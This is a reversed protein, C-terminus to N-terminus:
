FDSMERELEQARIEFQQRLKDDKANEDMMKDFVKFGCASVIRTHLQAGISKKGKDYYDRSNGNFRDVYFGTIGLLWWIVRRGEPRSLVKRIDQKNREDIFEKYDELTRLQEPTRATRKAM